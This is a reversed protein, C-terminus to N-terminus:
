SFICHGIATLADRKAAIVSEEEEPLPRMARFNM